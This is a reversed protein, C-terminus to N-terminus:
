MATASSRSIRAATRLRPPVSVLTQAGLGVVLTLIGASALLTATDIGFLALCYYLFGIVSFYKVFNSLAPVGATKGGTEQRLRTFYVVGKRSQDIFDPSSQLSQYFRIM